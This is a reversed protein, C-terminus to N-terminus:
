LHWEMQGRRRPTNTYMLLSNPSSSLLLPCCLTRHNRRIKTLEQTYGTSLSNVKIQLSVTEIFSPLLCNDNARNTRSSPVHWWHHYELPFPHGFLQLIFHRKPTEDDIVVACPHVAFHKLCPKIWKWACMPDVFSFGTYDPWQM